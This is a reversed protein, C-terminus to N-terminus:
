PCVVFAQMVVNSHRKSLLIVFVSQHCRQFSTKTIIDYHHGVSFMFRRDVSLMARLSSCCQLSTETAVYFRYKKFM